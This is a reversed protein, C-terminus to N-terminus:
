LIYAQLTSGRERVLFFREFTMVVTAEAEAGEVIECSSNAWATASARLLTRTARM